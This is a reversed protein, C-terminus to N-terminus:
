ATSEPKRRTLATVLALFIFGTVIMFIARPEGHDMLFGYLLPAVMGGLNFGTSVFGFVKGFSGPPTVARVMMDRSPQIIGNLLGGVSMLAILVAAPLNVWAMLIAMTSTCAFGVAAVREHHPTRDAIIGGLLVGGASFLLFGSLAMSAAAFPTGHIQALGVVTFTQIGGNAMALCFFFLLNRLIPASLLLDLGVKQGGDKATQQGPKHVVRPLISGAVILLFATAISLGAVFLFAGRWGWLAACALALAPTVGSGLYGAFTHISFAKGIRKHDITASLISYDAPHYVTNALGLFGYAIVFFWYGPLLAAAAVAVGGLILGGTLMARPGVRDVLFGAPTQLLASAANFATLAFGIEVYSVGFAERVEGFLPPLLMIHVHSVFHAVAILAIVKFERAKKADTGADGGLVDYSESTSSM